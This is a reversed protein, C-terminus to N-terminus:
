KGTNFTLDFTVNKTQFRFSFLSSWFLSGRNLSGTVYVSSDFDQFTEFANRTQFLTWIWWFTSLLIWFSAFYTQESCRKLHLKTLLIWGSLKLNQISQLHSCNNRELRCVTMDPVNKSINKEQNQSESSSLLTCNIFSLCDVFENLVMPGTEVINM